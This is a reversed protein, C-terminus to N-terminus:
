KSYCYDFGGESALALRGDNCWSPPTSMIVGQHKYAEEAYQEQVISVIEDHVTLCVRAEGGYTETLHKNIIAMQEAIVIRSLAQIINEVLVGGHTKTFYKGNWYEFQPRDGITEPIVRLGPYTLRMGNPLTLSQYGVTLGRWEYPIVSKRHMQEIVQGAEKWSRVINSNEHRWTDVWFKTQELTFFMQPGGNAGQMFTERLRRHSMYYGLGLECTKGVFGEVFDPEYEQGTEPHIAKKKRDIPRGFLKTALESYLDRKAAFAECKWDEGAWWALMRGEINSLDRVVVVHGEPARLARRLPSKRRLNQPNIKNTGGWRFTHAAAYNLPMAIRGNSQRHNLMRTARSVDINSAATLRAKWLYALDPYKAQLELFELSTKAFPYKENDPNKETPSAIKDVIIGHNKELFEAFKESSSLVPFKLEGTKPDRVSPTKSALFIELRERQKDALFTQVLETDLVFAPHIFMQLTMDLIPLESHPFWQLMTRFAEFTLDNDNLCYGGITAQQADSLTIIGAVSELEKGKRKAPDDPWLRKALTDLDNRAHNWLGRAMAQTCYYTRARLGYHWSLIAGDFLTNHAVFSHDNGPHFVEKLADAIKDEPYYIAPTDNIRISGGHVKFRPDFIYEEYTLKKLTYNTKEYYTEFDVTILAM